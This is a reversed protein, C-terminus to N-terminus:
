KNDYGLHEVMLGFNPCWYSSYTFKSEGELVNNITEISPPSGFSSSKILKLIPWCLIIIGKKNFTNFILKCQKFHFTWGNNWIKSEM